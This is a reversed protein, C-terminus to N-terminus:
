STRDLTAKKTKGGHGAPYTDYSLSQFKNKNHRKLSSQQIAAENQELSLRVFSIALAEALQKTAEHISLFDRRSATIAFVGESAPDNQSM